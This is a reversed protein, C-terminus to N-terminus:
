LGKQQLEQGNTNTITVSGKADTIKDKNYVTAVFKFTATGRCGLFIPELLGEGKSVLIGAHELGKYAM